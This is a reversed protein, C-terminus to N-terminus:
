ESGQLKIALVRMLGSGTNSFGHATGKPSEIITDASIDVSEVGQHARGSGELVYFLVDVPTAHPAIAQGPELTLHMVFAHSGDHLLRAVVGHPNPRSPVSDVRTLKM